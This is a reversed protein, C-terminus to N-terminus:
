HFLVGSILSTQHGCKACQFLQGDREPWAPHEPIRLWVHDLDCRACRLGDPWRCKALYGRCAEGTAFREKFDLLTKPFERWLVDTHPATM